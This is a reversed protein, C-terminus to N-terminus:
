VCICISRTDRESQGSRYVILEKRRPPLIYERVSSYQCPKKKTDLKDEPREKLSQGPLRKWRCVIHRHEAEKRSHSCM